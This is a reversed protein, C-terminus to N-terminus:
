NRFIVIVIIVCVFPLLPFKYWLLSISMWISVNLCCIVYVPYHCFIYRFWSISCIAWSNYFMMWLWICHRLLLFMICVITVFISVLYIGIDTVVVLKGVAVVVCVAVLCMSACWWVTGFEGYRSYRHQRPVWLAAHSSHRYSWELLCEYSGDMWAVLLCYWCKVGGYVCLVAMSEVM